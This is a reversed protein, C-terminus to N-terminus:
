GYYCMKDLQFSFNSLFHHFYLFFSASIDASVFRRQKKWASKPQPM